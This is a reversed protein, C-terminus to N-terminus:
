GAFHRRHRKRLGAFSWLVLVALLIPLLLQKYRGYYEAVASQNNGLLFGLSLLASNWITIGFFSYTFFVAPSQAAAGAVFAIYTRCLPLIRGFCVALSGYKQFKKEGALIGPVIKPFQLKLRTLIQEGGIRGICYCLGTGLLGAAVSLPLVCFLSIGEKAALAGTFPLVIESSIPFCAYELLIVFFMAWIGYQNMFDLVQEM